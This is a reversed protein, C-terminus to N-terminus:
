IFHRPMMRKFFGHCFNGDHCEWFMSYSNVICLDTGEEFNMHIAATLMKNLLIWGLPGAHADSQWRGTDNVIELM